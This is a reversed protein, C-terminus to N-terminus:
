PIKVDMLPAHQQKGDIDTDWPSGAVVNRPIVIKIANAPPYEYIKVDEAKVNYLKAILKPTLVKSNWVRKFDEEKDFMIDFSRRTAGNNATRVMNAIKKLPISM